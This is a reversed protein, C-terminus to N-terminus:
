ERFLVVAVLVRDDTNQRQRRDLRRPLVDAELRPVARAEAARATRLYRQRPKLAVQQHAGGRQASRRCSGLRALGSLLSLWLTGKIDIHDARSAM